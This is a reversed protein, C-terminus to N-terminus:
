VEKNFTQMFIFVSEMFLQNEAWQMSKLTIQFIFDFVRYSRQFLFNGGNHRFIALAKLHGNTMSRNGTWIGVTQSENSNIFLLWLKM